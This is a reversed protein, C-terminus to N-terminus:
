SKKIRIFRMIYISLVVFSSIIIIGFIIGKRTLIFCDGSSKLFMVLTMVGLIVTLIVALHSVIKNQIKIGNTMSLLIVGFAAPILSTYQFDKAELYRLVFGAIGATILIISYILNVQHPKEMIITQKLLLFLFFTTKNKM